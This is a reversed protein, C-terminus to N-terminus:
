HSSSVPSRVPPFDKPRQRTYFSCETFTRTMLKVPRFPIPQHGSAPLPTLMRSSFRPLTSHALTPPFSPTPLLSCPCSFAFSLALPLPLHLTHEPLMAPPHAPSPSSRRPWTGAGHSTQQSPLAPDPLHTPQFSPNEPGRGM